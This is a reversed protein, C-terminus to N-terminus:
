GVWALLLIIVVLVAILPLVVDIYLFRTWNSQKKPTKKPEAEPLLDSTQPALNVVSGIKTAAPSETPPVTTPEVLPVVVPETVPEVPPDVVPEPVPAVLLDVVPEPDVVPETVPEVPPDVVTEVLDLNEPASLQPGVRRLLDDLAEHRATKIILAAEVQARTVRESAFARAQMVARAMDAMKDSVLQDVTTRILEKDAIIGIADDSTEDSIGSMRKANEVDHQLVRLELSLRAVETQASRLLRHPDQGPSDMPALPDSLIILEESIHDRGIM